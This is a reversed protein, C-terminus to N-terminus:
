KGGGARIREECEKALGGMDIPYSGRRKHENYVRRCERADAERQRAVAELVVTAVDEIMAEAHDQWWGGTWQRLRQRLEMVVERRTPAGRMPATTM